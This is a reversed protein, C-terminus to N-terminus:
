EESHKLLMIKKIKFQKHKNFVNSNIEAGKINLMDKGKNSWLDLGKNSCLDLGKNHCIELNKFIYPNGQKNIKLDEADKSSSAPWSSLLQGFYTQCSHFQIKNAVAQKVAMFEM